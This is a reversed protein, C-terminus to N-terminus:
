QRGRDCDVNHLHVWDGVTITNRSKGIEEGYKIISKQPDLTILAVKHGFSIDAKAIIEIVETDTMVNIRDGETVDSLAVAVNDRSDIQVAKARNM